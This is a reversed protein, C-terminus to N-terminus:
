HVGSVSILKLPDVGLEKLVSGWVLSTETELVHRSNAKVTLWSGQQMEQELQGAGWGAYGLILRIPRSGSQLMQKLSDSTHSLFLGPIVEQREAITADQHLIWGREPQVPGGKLVPMKALDAHCLMKQNRAFSGLNTDTSHNVILGFAGETDHQLILVVSRFFNPDGLQPMSVLFIPSTIQIM